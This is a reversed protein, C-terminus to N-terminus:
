ARTLGTDARKLQVPQMDHNHANATMVMVELSSDAYMLKASFKCGNARHSCYLHSTMGRTRQTKMLHFLSGEEFLLQLQEDSDVTARLEYNLSPGRVRGLFVVEEYDENDSSM